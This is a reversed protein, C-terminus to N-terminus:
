KKKYLVLESTLSGGLRIFLGEQALQIGPMTCTRGCNDFTVEYDASIDVGRLRVHTETEGGTVLAFVGLMGRSADAADLEMVCVGKAGELNKGPLAPTHHYFLSDPHMPRVFEKYLKVYKRAADMQEPNAQADIPSFMNFTMRGFLAHRMQSDLDASLFSHQGCILRDVCEPPLAMTMGNTIRVSNPSKQYDTVWTHTFNAVMGLDSRGGGGSCNEFVVHPYDRRLRAYMAYANEYHRTMATETFGDKEHCFLSTVPGSGSDSGGDLRFMEIGYEEILYRINDEVWKAAEPISMNILGGPKGTKRNIWFWEPHELKVKSNDGG